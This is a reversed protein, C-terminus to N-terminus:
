AAMKLKMAPTIIGIDMKPFDYNYIWLWQTAFHQTEKITEIVYRYLWEYRFTRNYRKIYADQRSHGLQIREITIRTKPELDAAQM